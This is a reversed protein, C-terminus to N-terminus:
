SKRRSMWIVGGVLAFFVLAGSIFLITGPTFEDVTFSGAQTGGAYVTYTGPENRSVDFSVTSTGGGNVSVGQAAEEAGNVYVKIVSSGNGTGTNVVSATVTVKEGPAVKNASLSASKVSINSLSVPKQPATVPLQASSSQPASLPLAPGGPDVVTGNAMGDADGPGGDTLTLILTYEDVRTVLSSCDVMSGSICKYYRTGLPLPTPFKITVQTSAGANLGSINFSFMGYSFVFGGPTSCRIDVPPVWTVTSISGNSINFSVNGSITSANAATSVAPEYAGISCFAGTPRAMGRQDTAPAGSRAGHNYAPSATTIACTSTPGGNNQLPGLLPNTNVLDTALTFYCSSDSSLNYGQSHVGSGLGSYGNNYQSLTATNNAVICNKFYMSSLSSNSFGGGASTTGAASNNAITVNQLHMNSQGDNYIGGGVSSAGTVTNGSVTCNTLYMEGAYVDGDDYHLNAVGGGQYGAQNGSITCRALYVTGGLNCVGGGQNAGNGSGAGRTNGSITCDDMYLQHEIGVYVGGGVYSGYPAGGTVTVYMVMCNGSITVTCGTGGANIITRQAGSGVLSKGNSLSIRENYTGPAVYISGFSLTVDIAAQITKKPGTLGSTFTASSGDYSDSGTAANAYTKLYQTGPSDAFVPVSIILSPIIMLALLSICILGFYKKM